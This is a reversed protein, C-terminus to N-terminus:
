GLRPVAPRISRSGVPRLDRDHRVGAVVLSLFIVLGFGQIRLYTKKTLNVLGYVKITM